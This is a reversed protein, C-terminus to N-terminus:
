DTTNDGDRDSAANFNKEFFGGINASREVIFFLEHQARYRSIILGWAYDLFLRFELFISQTEFSWIGGIRKVLWGFNWM